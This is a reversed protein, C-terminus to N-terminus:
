ERSSSPSEAVPPPEPMRLAPDGLLDYIKPLAPDGGLARFEAVARLVRDGLREAGL